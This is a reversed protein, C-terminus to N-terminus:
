DALKNKVPRGATIDQHCARCVVLTKRHRAIMVQMWLPKDKRGPKKLDRLARIHHVEIYETSGCLECKDALLRQELETRYNVPLGFPADNLEAGLDRKLSIGGWTAVLPRKEEREIKFQLGKYPGSETLLVTGFRQYVQNVSIRLKQSLTKTLSAEMVYKLHDLQYLNHALRYYEVLGRYVQQYRVIIDYVGDNTWEPRHAPKGHKRYPQSKERIVDMPVMLSVIGNIRQGSKSRRQDDQFTHIHYGLFRADETRAHTVLTKTQSLELALEDRLFAGIRTKIDEAEAKPGAFSLLFDDAYRVYRLRRFHPDNAMKSPMTRALRQLPYAEAYRGQGRLYSARQMLRLYDPNEQRKSGRTYMPILTNEVWKDLRDLYINALIPSVVGGQPTGSPTTNFQWDEIYGANLLEDILAIFRGDHIKESLAALLIQHDLKDFCQAIDGEIFWTTGRWKYYVERLATHCGRRPRFGHSHDSFRPEYYAELILRIVEQVLKDSWTPLGLPRKKGKRKPIYTRRVPLWGYREHRLLDIITDIKALSMGDATEDNVGPTMAGKNRAIRGYAMLFLDRNFLNRYVRELPKGEEGRKRIIALVTDAKQM